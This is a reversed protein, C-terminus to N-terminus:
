QDFVDPWLQRKIRSLWREHKLLYLVMVVQSVDAGRAIVELLQGEMM